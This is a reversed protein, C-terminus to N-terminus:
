RPAGPTPEVLKELWAPLDDVTFHIHDGAGARAWDSENPVWVTVMGLAHAPRLNRAMDEVMAARAPDIGRSACLDLYPQLEPKPVFGAAVIDYIDPFHRDLGLRGLVRRAHATSGNTFILKRGPLRALARDLRDAPELPTLDIDHVYALFDSPDIRHESMLGRLTTGHREFLGKQVNKAELATLGLASAIFEGMRRDIEAFLNCRAPYLTNDLDFIWTEISALSLGPERGPSATAAPDSAASTDPSQM